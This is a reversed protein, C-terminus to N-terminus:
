LVSRPRHVFKLDSFWVLIMLKSTDLDFGFNSLRTGSM